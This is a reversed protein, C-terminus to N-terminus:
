EEVVAAAIDRGSLFAGRSPSENESDTHQEGKATVEGTLMVSSKGIGKSLRANKAKLSVIERRAKRLESRSEELEATLKAIQAELEDKGSVEDGIKEVAPPETDEDIEQAGKSAGDDNAHGDDQADLARQIAQDLSIDEVKDGAEDLWAALDEAAHPPTGNDDARNGDDAKDASDTDASDGSDAEKDDALKLGHGCNPCKSPTPRPLKEGCNPCVKPPTRPAPVLGPIIKEASDEKRTMVTGCKECKKENCKEGTAHEETYGCEPCVCVGGPGLGQEDEKVVMFQKQRNAGARVLSVYEPDIETLRFLKEGEKMTEASKKIKTKRSM